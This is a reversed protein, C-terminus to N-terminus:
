LSTRPLPTALPRFVVDLSVISVPVANQRDIRGLPLPPGEGKNIVLIEVKRGQEASAAVARPVIVILRRQVACVHEYHADVAVVCGGFGEIPRDGTGGGVRKM